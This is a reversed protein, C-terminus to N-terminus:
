GREIALDRKILEEFEEPPLPRSFFFGQVLDCGGDRLLDLQGQTEVGEAVVSVDLYRAIDLILKVLRLDKESKEINRVFRMDMKLVDFPMESLMNLSSYGTGFDDMEIMFGLDRMDGVVEVLEQGNNTYSSETVELKIDDFDLGNDKVLDTLREMLTPDFVDSRSLNVSV